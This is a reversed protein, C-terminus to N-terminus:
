EVEVMKKVKDTVISIQNLVASWNSDTKRQSRKAGNASSSRVSITSFPSKSVHKTRKCSVSGPRM